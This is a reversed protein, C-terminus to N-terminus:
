TTPFGSITIVGLPTGDPSWREIINRTGYVLHIKGGRCTLHFIGDFVSRAVAQPTRRLLEVGERDYKFLTEGKPGRLAGIWLHGDDDFALSFVSGSSTIERIPEFDWTLLQIRDSAFDAM